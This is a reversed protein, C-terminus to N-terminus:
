DMKVRPDVLAYGIDACLNGFLTLLAFFMNLAMVLSFDRAMVGSYLEKGIGPWIFITELITSGGFLMPIYFGILTIVPILANRFAHKYIVVKEDLGKSRATRIYDQKIVELMANRVYRVLSALSSLTVVLLPLIMHIGVDKIYAFGTANLGPTIMGNMPFWGLKFAFVSVLVLGFFFTPICVGILSFVAWFNDFFSYKKVASIIGVPISILFALIFGGVNLIFSNKIFPAVVDKVPRKYVQSEGFEGTAMRKAWKVYQIPLPDNLGLMEELQARKEATIEVGQGVYGNLPDGPMSKVMGFIVLSIVLIVPILHLFRKFLFKLM